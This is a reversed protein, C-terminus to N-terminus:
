RLDEQAADLEAQAAAVRAEKKRRERAAKDEGLADGLSEQLHAWMDRLVEAFEYGSDKGLLAVPVSAAWESEEAARAVESLILLFDSYAISVVM